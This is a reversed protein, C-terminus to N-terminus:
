GVRVERVLERSGILCEGGEVREDDEDSMHSPNRRHHIDGSV